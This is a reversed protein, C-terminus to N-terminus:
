NEYIILINKIIRLMQKSDNFKKFLRIYYDKVNEEINM